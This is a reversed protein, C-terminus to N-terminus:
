FEPAIYLSFEASQNHKDISTLGCVGLETENHKIGFMKIRPDNEIKELWKEHQKPSILTYQRCWKWVDPHNRWERAQKPIEAVLQM